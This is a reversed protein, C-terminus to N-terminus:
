CSTRRSRCVVLMREKEVFDMACNLFFWNFFITTPAGRPAWPTVEIRRPLEMLSASWFYPGYVLSLLKVLYPQATKLRWIKIEILCLRCSEKNRMGILRWTVAVCQHKLDRPARYGPFRSFHKLIVKVLLVGLFISQLPLGTFSGDRFSNKWTHAQMKFIKVPM